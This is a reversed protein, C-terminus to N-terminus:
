VFRGLKRQAPATRRKGPNFRAKVEIAALRDREHEALIERALQHGYTPGAIVGSGNRSFQRKSSPDRFIHGCRECRWDGTNRRERISTSRCYPCANSKAITM